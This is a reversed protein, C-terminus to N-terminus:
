LNNQLFFIHVLGEAPEGECVGGQYKIEFPRKNPIPGANIKLLNPKRQHKKLVHLLGAQIMQATQAGGCVEPHTPCM